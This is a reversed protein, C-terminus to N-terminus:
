MRPDTPIPCTSRPRLWRALALRNKLTQPGAILRNERNLQIVLFPGDRKPLDFGGPDTIVFEDGNREARVWARSVGPTHRIWFSRELWNVYFRM